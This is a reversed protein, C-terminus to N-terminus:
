TIRSPHTKPSKTNSQVTDTNSLTSSVEEQVVSSLAVSLNIGPYGPLHNSVQTASNDQHPVGELTTLQLKQARDLYKPVQFTRYKM